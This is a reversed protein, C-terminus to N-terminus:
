NDQNKLGQRSIWKILGPFFRYLAQSFNASGLMVEPKKNNVADWIANAVDEPKEVLPNKFVNELQERRSQADQEDKGRLVAREM